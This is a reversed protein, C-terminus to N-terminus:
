GGAVYGGIGLAGMILTLYGLAKYMQMKMEKHEEKLGRQNEKIVEHDKNSLALAGALDDKSALKDDLAALKNCSEELHADISSLLKIVETEFETM